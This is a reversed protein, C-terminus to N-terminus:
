FRLLASLPYLLNGVAGMVGNKPAQPVYVVDGKQMIVDHSTDGNKLVDYLNVTQVSKKGDPSNRTVTIRNLDASQQTATGARAIAMAVDDGERVQVDGPKDVAGVVEVTLLTPAPVYVTEGSAVFMNSASDGDHLLKQLSVSGTTGDPYQLRADPFNGDTPGLGGAAAIVDTLRAPPPLTYKGPVKVNGLVLAEIPGVSVVALTVKPDRVYRRLKRAVAESAQATTLGGIIVNGALPVAITGGQLVRLPTAPSLTTEGFVSLSVEDGQRIRYDRTSQVTGEAPGASAGGQLTTQAGAPLSSLLSAAVLVSVAVTGM